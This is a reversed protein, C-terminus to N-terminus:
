GLGFFSILFKRDPVKVRVGPFRVICGHGGGFRVDEFRAGAEGGRVVGVAVGEAVQLARHLRQFHMALEACVIGLTEVRFHITQDLLGVGKVRRHLFNERIPSSVLGRVGYLVGM